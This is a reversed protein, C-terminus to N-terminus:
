VAAAVPAWRGRTLIREIAGDDRLLVLDASAGPTLPAAGVVQAPRWAAAALAEAASAGTYRMWRRLMGDLLVATGALTGESTRVAGSADSRVPRGALGYRGPPAGAPASADSVLVLRDGAATRCLRLVEEHIHIGDAIVCAWARRDTLAVGVLGPARHHLPAMGNFVHTVLTAGAALARHATQADAGSHGLAVAIGARRLRGILELAGDLEPALTVLRVAPHFYHDPVGSAPTRLLERRHVGAHDPALFPGELHVGLLGHAPDAMREAADALVAAIREDEATPLAALWGTVGHAAVATDIADLATGGDLADFGAAGNVQLDVLGPGIVGEHTLDPRAPPEGQGRAAVRGDEVRLWGQVPRGAARALRGAIVFATM